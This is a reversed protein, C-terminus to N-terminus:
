KEKEGEFKAPVAKLCEKSLEFRNFDRLTIM